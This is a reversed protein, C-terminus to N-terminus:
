SNEENEEKKEEKKDEMKAEMEAEMAELEDYYTPSETLHDMAIERAISRDETHEMEVKIGKQIQKQIMKPSVGHKNAISQTTKGKAMGGEIHEKSEEEPTEEAEHKPSEKKEENAAVIIKRETIDALHQLAKEASAFKLEKMDEEGSQTEFDLNTWGAIPIEAVPSIGMGFKLVSVDYGLLGLLAMAQSATHGVYCILVITKDKPLKAINEPKFLDLWFINTSGAIHGKVYDEPKRIDLLFLDEADNDLIRENLEKPTIYNWNQDVNQIYTSIQEQLEPM